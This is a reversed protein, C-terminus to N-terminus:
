KVPPMPTPPEPAAVEYAGPYGPPIRDRNTYGSAGVSALDLIIALIIWLWDSGQLGQQGVPNSSVLFVYILTTFPLFLFGLCPFIFTNFANEM